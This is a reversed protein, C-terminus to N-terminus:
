RNETVLLQKVLAAANAARHARNRARIWADVDGADGDILVLHVCAVAVVRFPHHAALLQANPAIRNSSIKQLHGEYAIAEVARVGHFRRTVGRIQLGYVALHPHRSSVCM